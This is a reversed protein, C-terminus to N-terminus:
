HYNISSKSNLLLHKNVDSSKTLGNNNSLNKNPLFFNKSLALIIM